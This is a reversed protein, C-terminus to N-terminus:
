GTPTQPASVTPPIGLHCAAAGKRCLSDPDTGPLLGPSHPRRSIGGPRAGLPRSSLPGALSNEARLVTVGRVGQHLLHVVGADEQRPELAHIGPVGQEGLQSHQEPCPPPPAHPTEAGPEEAPTFRQSGAPAGRRTGLPTM